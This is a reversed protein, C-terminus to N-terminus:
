LNIKGLTNTLYEEIYRGLEQHEEKLLEADQKLIENAAESAEQLINADM